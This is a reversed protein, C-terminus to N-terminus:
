CRSRCLAGAAHAAAICVGAAPGSLGACAAVAAAEAANCGLQCIPNPIKPWHFGMLSDSDTAAEIADGSKILGSNTLIEQIRSRDQPSLSAYADQPIPIAAM